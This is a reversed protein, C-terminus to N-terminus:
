GEMGRGEGEMSREVLERVQWSTGQPLVYDLLFGRTARRRLRLMRRAYERVPSDDVNEPWNGEDVGHLSVFDRLAVLGTNALWRQARDDSSPPPPSPSSSSSSSSRPRSDPDTARARARENAILIAERSQEDISPPPFPDHDDDDDDDDHQLPELHAALTGEPDAAQTDNEQLQMLRQQLELMRAGREEVQELPIGSREIAALFDEPTHEEDPRNNTQGEGTGLWPIIRAFFAQLGRYEQADQVEVGAAPPPPTVVGADRFPFPHTFLSRHNDPSSPRSFTSYSPEDNPPPLPDAASTQLTTFHHPLLSILPPVDSLLVHRAENLTISSDRLPGGLADDLSEAVEVLLSIAEPTNWLDKARTVYIESEFRERDNRAEKGWIAKPIHGINLEQFLRASLWPFNTIATRLSSRAAQPHKLKYEALATSTQVSPSMHWTVIWHPSSRKSLSLFHEAQGGRLALQDLVLRIAYPDGEPDLSLLLKAWEYTTRWTGRQGLNNIYRWSALWFERNEPRRFDLRAKGESLATPFSSHVSRGFSFLARELLDGSVSHDGQQKAIESVQLM